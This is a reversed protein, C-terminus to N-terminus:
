SKVIKIRVDIENEGELVSISANNGLKKLDEIREKFVSIADLFVSKDDSEPAKESISKPKQEKQAKQLLKEIYEETSAVNQKGTAAWKIIEIRTDKSDIGLLARAHRESLGTEIILRQEEYSLKLLRLKNAIASQSLSMKRAVDAQTLGYNEILQKFGHAKEFM